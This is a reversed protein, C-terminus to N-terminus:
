PKRDVRQESPERNPALTPLHPKLLPEVNPPPGDTHDRTGQQDIRLEDRIPGRLANEIDHLRRAIFAGDLV